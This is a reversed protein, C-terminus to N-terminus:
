ASRACMWAVARNLLRMVCYIRAPWFIWTVRFSADIDSEEELSRPEVEREIFAAVSTALNRQESTFFPTEAIFPDPM